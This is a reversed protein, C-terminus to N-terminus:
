RMRSIRVASALCGDPCRGGRWRMTARVHGRTPFDVSHRWVAAGYRAALRRIADQADAARVHVARYNEVTVNYTDM